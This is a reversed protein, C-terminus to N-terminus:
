GARGPLAKRDRGGAEQDRLSTPQPRIGTPGVRDRHHVQANNKPARGAGAGHFQPLRLM